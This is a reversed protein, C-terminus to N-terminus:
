QKVAERWDDTFHHFTEDITGDFLVLEDIIEQGVSVESQTLAM